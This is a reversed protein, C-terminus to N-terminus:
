RICNYITKVSVGYEKALDAVSETRHKISERQQQTLKSKTRRNFEITKKPLLGLQPHKWGKYSRLQGKAVKYLPSFDIGKDKAFAVMNVVEVLEDEPSLLIWTNISKATSLRQKAEDSWKCGGSTGATYSANYAMKRDLSDLHRQEAPVVDAFNPVVEVIEFVFSQEGYKKWANLLHSNHHTRLRLQCRHNAFRQTFSDTTSGLYQKGNVLNRIRYIGFTNNM